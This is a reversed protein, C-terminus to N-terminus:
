WHAELMQTLPRHWPVLINPLDARRYWGITEADDGAAPTGGRYDTVFLTTHTGDSSGRYRPDNMRTRGVWTYPGTTIGLVEETRERKAAVLDNEDSPDLFGGPFAVFEEFVSKGILLVRERRRDLIAIDVTSYALDPRTNLAHIISARGEETTPMVAEARLETGSYKEKPTISHTEYRGTYAPIFSDRSGYLVAGADGAKRTVLNDLDRSWRENSLPHDRLPVVMVDDEPYTAKVMHRREAYTLPDRKTRLGGHEGLCIMIWAHRSRVEEIISLWGPHLRQGQFRAVLVGLSPSKLM